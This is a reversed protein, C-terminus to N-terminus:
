TRGAIIQHHGRIGTAQRGILEVRCTNADGGVFAGNQRGDSGRRLPMIAEPGAEGMLGIGNAFPFFTPKGVVSNAYAHLGPSAVGDDNTVLIKM